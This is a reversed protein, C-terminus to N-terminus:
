HKRTQNQNKERLCYHKKDLELINPQYSQGFGLLNVANDFSITNYSNTFVM